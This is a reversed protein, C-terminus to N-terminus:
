LEKLTFDVRWLGKRSIDKVLKAKYGDVFMEANKVVLTETDFYDVSLKQNKRLNVNKRFILNLSRLLYQIETKSIKYFVTKQPLVWPATDIRHCSM